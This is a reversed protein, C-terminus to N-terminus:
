AAEMEDRLEYEEDEVGQNHDEVAEEEIGDHSDPDAIEQIVTWGFSERLVLM